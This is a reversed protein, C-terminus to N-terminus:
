ARKYGFYLTFTRAWVRPHPISHLRERFRSTREANMAPGIFSISSLVRELETPSLSNEDEFRAENLLPIQAIGSLQARRSQLPRPRRPASDQMLAIVDTMFPTCGLECTLLMLAGGPALTRAVESAALETDIFHLADAILIADLCRDPLPLAEAQAHHTHITLAASRAAVSLRDLMRRAPEIATVELGREALPLALHGIGAGVDGIRPGRASAIEAIRDIVERPYAPRADYVDAMRNFVWATEDKLSVRRRSTKM